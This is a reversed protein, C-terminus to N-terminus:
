NQACCKTMLAHPADFEQSAWATSFNSSSIDVIAARCTMKQASAVIDEPAALVEKSPMCVPPLTAQTDLKDWVIHRASSAIRKVEVWLLDLKDIATYIFVKFHFPAEKYMAATPGLGAGQRADEVGGLQRPVPKVKNVHLKDQEKEWEVACLSNPGYRDELDKYSIFFADNWEDDARGEARFLVYNFMRVMYREKRMIDLLCETNVRPPTVKVNTAVVKGKILLLLAIYENELTQKVFAKDCAKGMSARVFNQWKKQHAVVVEDKESVKAKPAEIRNNDIWWQRMDRVVDEFPLIMACNERTNDFASVNFYGPTQDDEFYVVRVKSYALLGYVKVTPSDKRVLRKMAEVIHHGAIAYWDFEASDREFFDALTIRRGQVGVIDNPDVPALVLEPRDWAGPDTTIFSEITTEIGRVINESLSHHNYLIKMHVAHVDQTAFGQENYELFFCRTTDIPAVHQVPEDVDKPMRPDVEEGEDGSERLEQPRVRQSNKRAGGHGGGGRGGGHGGSRGGRQKESSTVGRKSQSQSIGRSTSPQGATVEVDGAPSIDHGDMPTDDDDNDGLKNDRDQMIIGLKWIWKM